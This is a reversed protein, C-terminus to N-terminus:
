RLIILEFRLETVARVSHVVGPSMFLWAGANLTYSNDEGATVAAEGEAVHVVAEHPTSHETLEQGADLVFLTMRLADDAHVVKSTIGDKTSQVLGSTSPLVFHSDSM